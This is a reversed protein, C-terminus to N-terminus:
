AIGCHLRHGSKLESIRKRARAIIQAAHGNGPDQDAIQQAGTLAQEAQAARGTAQYAEALHALVAVVNPNNEGVYKRMQPLAQELLPVAENARDTMQLLNARLVAAEVTFVNDTGYRAMTRKYLEDADALAEDQYGYKCAVGPLQALTSLLEDDEPYRERLLYGSAALSTIDV